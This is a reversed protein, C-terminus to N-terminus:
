SNDQVVTQNVALAFLVLVLLHIEQCGIKGNIKYYQVDTFTKRSIIM